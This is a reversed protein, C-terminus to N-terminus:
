CKSKMLYFCVCFALGVTVGISLFVANAGIRLCLYVLLALLPVRIAYYLMFRKMDLKKVSLRIAVFSFAFIFVGCVFGLICNFVTVLIVEFNGYSM